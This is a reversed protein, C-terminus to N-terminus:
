MRRCFMMLGGGIMSLASFASVKTSSYFPPPDCGRSLPSSSPLNTSPAALLEALILLSSRARPYPSHATMVIQLVSQAICVMAMVMLTRYLHQNLVGEVACNTTSRLRSSSKIGVRITSPFQCSNHSSYKMFSVNMDVGPAAITNNGLAPLVMILVVAAMPTFFTTTNNIFPSHCRSLRSVGEVQDIVLGIHYGSFALSSANTGATLM